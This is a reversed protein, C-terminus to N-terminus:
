TSSVIGSHSLSTCGTRIGGLEVGGDIGLIVSKGERTWYGYVAAAILGSGYRGGTKFSWLVALTLGAGPVDM